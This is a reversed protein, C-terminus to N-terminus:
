SPDVSPQPPAPKKEMPKGKAKSKKQRKKWLPIVYLVVGTASLALIAIASTDSMLVGWDHHFLEGTHLEKIWNGEHEKEELIEGSHASIIFEKPKASASKHAMVKVVLGYGPEDKLEIKELAVPKGWRKSATEVAATVSAQHSLWDAAVLKTPAERRVPMTHKDISAVRRDKEKKEGEKEKYKSPKLGLAHEHNLMFGTAAIVLLPALLILGVWLHVDRFKPYLSM